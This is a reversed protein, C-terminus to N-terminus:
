LLTGGGLFCCCTIATKLSWNYVVRMLDTMKRSQSAHSEACLNSMGHRCICSSLGLVVFTLMRCPSKKIRLSTLYCVLLQGCIRAFSYM